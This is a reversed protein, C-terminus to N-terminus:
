RIWLRWIDHAMCGAIAFDTLLSDILIQEINPLLQPQAKATIVLLVLLQQVSEEYFKEFQVEAAFSFTPKMTFFSYLCFSVVSM